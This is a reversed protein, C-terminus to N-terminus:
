LTITPPLDFPMRKLRDRMFEEEELFFRPGDEGGLGLGGQAFPYERVKIDPRLCELETLNRRNQGILQSIHRSDAYLVPNKLEHRALLFVAKDLWLAGAALHGFSPHFPGALVGKGWAIEHTPQLGVRIVEVGYYRCLLLLDRCITVAEELTLPRYRDTAYLAALPTGKLVLTPYLRATDPRYALLAAANALARARDEGPLGPMLQVGWHFGAKKLLSAAQFSDAAGHGRGANKLVEDELSQVGLEVMDVGFEALFDLKERSIADPRTSVRVGRIRGRQLAEATVKLYYAQEERSLATFSGGYFAVEPLPEQRWAEIAAAVAAATPACTGTVQFQDCFICRHPCGKHPIFFPLIYRNNRGM